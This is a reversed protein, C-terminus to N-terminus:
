VDAERYVTRFQCQRRSCGPVARPDVRTNPAPPRAAGATPTKETQQELVGEGGKPQVEARTNRSSAKNSPHPAVLAEDDDTWKSIAVSQMRATQDGGFSIDGPKRPVVDVM